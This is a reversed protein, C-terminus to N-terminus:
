VYKWCRQVSALSSVSLHYFHKGKAGAYFSHRSLQTKQSQTLAVSLRRFVRGKTSRLSNQFFADLEHLSKTKELDVLPYNFHIGVVRKVGRARDMLSLNSTLHRIRRDLLEFDGTALFSLYSRIIRTKIKNVKKDAIDLWVERGPPCMKKHKEVAVYYAYGLYDFSKFKPSNGDKADSNRFRKVPIHKSKSDKFTLNPSVKKLLSSLHILFERPDERQSTVITLDDVYRRYFFVEPHEGVRRDFPEMMLESLASSLSLGRPIGSLGQARHHNLLMGIVRRTADSLHEVTRLRQIVQKPDFSEYFSRVDLKYLNYAVSDALIRQLAQVVTKRDDTYGTGAAKLNQDLKRIALQARYTQAQAVSKTRITAYVIESLWPTPDHLFDCALDLNKEIAGPARLAPHNLFDVKRVNTKITYATFAQDVM